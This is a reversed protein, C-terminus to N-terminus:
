RRASPPSPPLFQHQPLPPPSTTAPLQTQHQHAALLAFPTSPPLDCPRQIHNWVQRKRGRMRKIQLTPFHPGATQLPRNTSRSRSHSHLDPLQGSSRRGRDHATRHPPRLVLVGERTTMPGQFFSITLIHFDLCERERTTLNYKRRAGNHSPPRDPPPTDLRSKGRIRRYWPDVPM